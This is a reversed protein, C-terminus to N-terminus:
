LVVDAGIEYPPVALQEPIVPESGCEMQAFGCNTEVPVGYLAVFKLRCLLEGASAAPIVMEGGKGSKKSSVRLTGQSRPLIPWFVPPPGGCAGVPTVATTLQLSGMQTQYTCGGLRPPFICRRSKWASTGKNCEM